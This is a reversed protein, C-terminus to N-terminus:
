ASHLYTYSDLSPVERLTRYSEQRELVKRFSRPITGASDAVERYPLPIIPSPHSSSHFQPSDFLPPSQTIYSPQPFPFPLTPIDNGVSSCLTQPYSPPLLTIPQCTSPLLPVLPHCPTFIKSPNPLITSSPKANCTRTWTDPIPTPTNPSLMLLSMPTPHPTHTPCKLHRHFLPTFFYSLSPNPHKLHPAPPIALFCLLVSHCHPPHTYLLTPTPVDPM